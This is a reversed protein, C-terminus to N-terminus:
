GRIRWHHELWLRCEDESDESKRERHDGRGRSRRHPNLIPLKKLQSTQPNGLETKM